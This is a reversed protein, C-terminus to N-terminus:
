KGIRGLHTDNFSSNKLGYGLTRDFEIHALWILGIFTATPLHVILGFAALGIALLQFHALNYSIAGVKPNVLYGLMALDPTLFLVAVLWGPCGLQILAAICVGLVAASELRLYLSPNLTQTAPNQNMFKVEEKLVFVTRRSRSCHVDQM